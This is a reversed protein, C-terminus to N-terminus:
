PHLSCATLRGEDNWEYRTRRHGEHTLRLSELATITLRCVAFNERASEDTEWDQTDDPLRLKGPPHPTRYCERSMQLMTEWVTRSVADEYHLTLTGWLRIQLREPASYFVACVNPNQRIQEVKPARADTNFQLFRQEPHVGRLVMTRADPLGNQVTALTFTHFGHRRERVGTELVAWIQALNAEHQENM